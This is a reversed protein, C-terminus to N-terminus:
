SGGSASQQEFIRQLIKQCAWFSQSREFGTQQHIYQRLQSLFQSSFDNIQPFNGTLETYFHIQVDEKLRNVRPIVECTKKQIQLLYEETDQFQSLHNLYKGLVSSAYAVITKKKVYTNALIAPIIRDLTFLIPRQDQEIEM